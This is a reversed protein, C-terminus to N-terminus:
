FWKGVMIANYYPIWSSPSGFNPERSSMLAGCNCLCNFYHQHEPTNYAFVTLLTCRSKVSLYWTTNGKFTDDQGCCVKYVLLLWNKFLLFLFGQIRPASYRMEYIKKYMRSSKNTQSNKERLFTHFFNRWRELFLLM